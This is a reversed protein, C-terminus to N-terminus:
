DKEEGEDSAATVGEPEGVGDWRRGNGVVGL